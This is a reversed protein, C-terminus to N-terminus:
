RKWAQHTAWRSSICATCTLRSAARMARRRAEGSCARRWARVSNASSGSASDECRVTTRRSPSIPRVRSASSWYSRQRCNSARSSPPFGDRSISSIRMASPLPAFAPFGVTPLGADAGGTAWRASTTTAPAIMPGAGSMPRSTSIARSPSFSRAAASPRQRSTTSSTPSGPIPLDRSSSSNAAMALARPPCTRDPRAKSASNTRGYPAQISAKRDALPVAGGACRDSRGSAPSARACSASAPRVGSKSRTASDSNCNARVCLGSTTNSSSM